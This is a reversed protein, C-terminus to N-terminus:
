SLNAVKVEHVAPLTELKSMVAKPIMSDISMICLALEGLITGSAEQRGVNLRGVNISAGELEQLIEMVAGARDENRFMLLTGEPKFAPFGRHEDIQVLNPEEGFVSGSISHSKGDSLEVDVTVVNTYPSNVLIAHIKDDIATEIGLEKALFPANILSPSTKCEPLHQLLGKLVTALMVQRAGGAEINAAKGGYTHLTIKTVKSDAMQSHLQGIRESLTLYSAMALENAMAMYSVNVVGTYAKGELTDCMQEAVDRAVNVQAEETSAGLHPTCVLRPHQLLDTMDEPPPESSYVDLAASAVKGSQLAAHLAKENVIGGRACNVIIVGDKMKAITDENVLDKTDPTLPTHLTIFDARTWIDNLDMLSIGVQAATDKPLAPDFGIVEM